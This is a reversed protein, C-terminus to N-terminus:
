LARALRRCAKLLLKPLWRCIGWIGFIVALSFIAMGWSSATFFAHYALWGLLFYHLVKWLRQHACEAKRWAVGSTESAVKAVEATTRVTRVVPHLARAGPPPKRIM